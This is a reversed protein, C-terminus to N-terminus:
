ALGDIFRRVRDLSSPRAWVATMLADEALEARDMAETAPRRLQRKTLRYADLGRAARSAARAVATDLLMDDAVVEDLLGAALAAPTDLLEASLALRQAGATGVTHRMIEIASTPFPVGVALESLGFRASRDAAVRHDCAASLVLGGAIAHGNVAAVVPGPYGFLTRFATSLAGLFAPVYAGPETVLRRLDVGASFTTGRGTLVLPVGQEALEDLTQVLARLLELDLANVKGHALRLVVVEGCTEREIM